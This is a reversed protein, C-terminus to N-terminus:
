DINLNIVRTMAACDSYFDVDGSVYDTYWGGRTKKKNYRSSLHVTRDLSHLEIDQMVRAVTYVKYRPYALSGPPITGDNIFASLKEKSKAGIKMVFKSQLAKEEDNTKKGHYSDQHGFITEIVVSCRGLKLLDDITDSSKHKVKQYLLLMNEVTASGTHLQPYRDFLQSLIHAGSFLTAVERNWVQRCDKRPNNEPVERCDKKRYKAPNDQSTCEKNTVKQPPCTIKAKITANDVIWGRRPIANFRPKVVRMGKDKVGIYYPIIESITALQGVAHYPVVISGLKTRPMANRVIQSTVMSRVDSLSCGGANGYPGSVRGVRICATLLEKKLLKTKKKQVCKKPMRAPVCDRTITLLQKSIYECVNPNGYDEFANLRTFSLIESQEGKEVPISRLLVWFERKKRYKNAYEWDSVGVCSYRQNDPEEGSRFFFAQSENHTIVPRVCHVFITVDRKVINGHAESVVACDNIDIRTSYNNQNCQINVRELDPIEFYARMAPFSDGGALSIRNPQPLEMDYCSPCYQDWELCYSDPNWLCPKRILNNPLECDVSVWDFTLLTQIYDNNLMRSKRISRSFKDYCHVCRWIIRGHGGCNRCGVLVISRRISVDNDAGDCLSQRLEGTCSSRGNTFSCKPVRM